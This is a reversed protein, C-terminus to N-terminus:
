HVQFFHKLFHLVSVCDYMMCPTTLIRVKSEFEELDQMERINIGKQGKLGMCEIQMIVQRTLGCNAPLCEISQSM